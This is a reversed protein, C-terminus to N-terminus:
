VTVLQQGRAASTTCHLEIHDIQWISSHDMAFGTTAEATSVCACAHQSVDGCPPCRTPDSQHNPTVLKTVKFHPRPPPPNYSGSSTVQFHKYRQFPRTPQTHSNPHTPPLQSTPCSSLMLDKQPYTPQQTCHYPSQDQSATAGCGWEYMAAGAVTATTGKRIHCMRTGVWSQTVLQSSSCTQLQLKLWHDSVSQLHQLLLRQSDDHV